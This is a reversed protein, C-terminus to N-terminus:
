RALVDMRGDAAARVTINGHEDTRLVRVEHRTLRGLVDPAPHGYRNRRGASILALDPRAAALLADSTSTRSGHHGVKLVTSKLRAGHRDIIKAEISSPADGLFLATFDGYRLHLVVSNDNADAAEDLARVPYMLAIHVRDISFTAEARAAVWRRGSRRAAALLDVFIDSGAPFGPDIIVGVDFVELVAAAGGIHDAHPHTLVLAEIRRAGHRLLYPVVRDRGADRRFTRPGADILIWRDRPTRVAIADGQGVDIAHIEVRGDHPRLVHPSWAFVAVAAAAAIGARWRARRHRAAWVRHVADPAHSPPPLPQAAPTLARRVLVVAAAAALAAFVTAAAVHGHGGPVRAALDACTDLLRLPADALTAHLGSTTGTLVAIALALLLAALAAALLPVAVLSAPIGIWAATGFHLAAIPTTLASAAIGAAIGDRAHRHMRRPLLRALPARWGVLGIMGAFSLQFGPDLLALPELLLIALAAAALSTFPEAPRQLELAGLLLTAQLLARLAANPAGLFLVYAAAVLLAARRAHRRSLGCAAGIGLAGGLLLGVHMGSIALLHVLGAAVWRDRTERSLGAKHALLLAEALGWRDPLLARLRAQQSTRFRVVPGARPSQLGGEVAVSDALVAGAFEPRRPWGGRAPYASWRGHVVLAAARGRAVSDLVAIRSEPANVRLVVGQCGPPRRGDATSAVPSDVRAARVPTAAGDTSLVLPVGTLEVRAGDELGSRCDTRVAAARLGGVLAGALCFALPATARPRFGRILMAAAAAAALAIMAAAAASPLARLGLLLGAAYALTARLLPTM